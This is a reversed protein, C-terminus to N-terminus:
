LRELVADGTANTVSHVNSLIRDVAVSGPVEQLRFHHELSAVIFQMVM